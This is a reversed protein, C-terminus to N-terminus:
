SSTPASRAAWKLRDLSYEVRTAGGLDGPTVLDKRRSAGLKELARQSRLNNESTHFLVRDVFQFAHNLMLKKLESNIRGGWFETMLFTYGVFVQRKGADFDYYRSSGIIKGTRNHVIVFAGPAMLAKEFFKCFVGHEWRNSESHLKWIEPDSAAAYLAEFDDSTIPRLTIQLGTLTLTLNFTTNGSIDTM